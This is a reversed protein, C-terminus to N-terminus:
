INDVLSNVDPQENDPSIERIQRRSHTSANQLILGVSILFVGTFREQALFLLLIGAITLLMGIIWGVWGAIRTARDYNDWLQWLLARLIKGGDLPFGPLLHFLALMLCIFALWQLLVDVVLQHHQALVAYAVFFAGAIILNYLMGAVALLLEKAPMTSDKDVQSLGGFAFLTVSRVTAGKSVAILNLVLERLLIAFFFLISASVGFAIRLPLTGYETSFQTVVALTILPIAVIWTYHIRIHIGFFRGPM